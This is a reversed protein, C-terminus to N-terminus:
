RTIIGVPLSCSKTWIAFMLRHLHYALMLCSSPGEATHTHECRTCVLSPQVTRTARMQRGDRDGGRAACRQKRSLYQADFGLAPPLNAIGPETENDDGGKWEVTVLHVLDTEQLKSNILKAAAFPICWVGILLRVYM